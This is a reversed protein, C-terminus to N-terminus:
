SGFRSVEMSLAETGSNRPRVLSLLVMSHCQRYLLAPAKPQHTSYHHANLPHSDGISRLSRFWGDLCPHGDRPPIQLFGIVCDRIRCIPLPYLALTAHTGPWPRPRGITMRFAMGTSGVLGPSTPM